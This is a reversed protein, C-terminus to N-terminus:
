FKFDFIKLQSFFKAKLITAWPNILFAHLIKKLKSAYKFFNRGFLCGIKAQIKFGFSLQNKPRLKALYAEFKFFIRCANRM